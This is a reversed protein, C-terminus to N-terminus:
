YPEKDIFRHLAAYRQGKNDDTVERALEFYFRILNFVENSAVEEVRMLKEIALNFMGQSEDENGKLLWYREIFTSIREEVEDLEKKLVAFLEQTKKDSENTWFQDYERKIMRKENWTRNIQKPLDEIEQHVLSVNMKNEIILQDKIEAYKANMSDTKLLEKALLQFAGAKKAHMCRRMDAEIDVVNHSPYYVKIESIKQKFTSIM